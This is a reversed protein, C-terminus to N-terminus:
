VECHSVLLVAMIGKFHEHALVRDNEHNEIRRSMLRTGYPLGTCNLPIHYPVHDIEETCEGAASMMRLFFEMEELEHMLPTEWILAARKGHHAM